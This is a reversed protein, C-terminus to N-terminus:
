QVIEGGGFFAGLAHAVGLDTIVADNKTWRSLNAVADQLLRRRLALLHQIVKEIAKRNDREFLSRTPHRREPM